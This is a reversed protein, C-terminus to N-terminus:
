RKNSFLLLKEKPFNKYYQLYGAIITLYAGKNVDATASVCPSYFM